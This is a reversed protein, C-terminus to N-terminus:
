FVMKLFWGMLCNLVLRITSYPKKPHSVLTKKGSPEVIQVDDTDNTIIIENNDEDYPFFYHAEEEVSFVNNATDNPQSSSVEKSNQVGSHSISTNDLTSSKFTEVLNILYPRPKAAMQRSIRAAAEMLLPTTIISGINSVTNLKRINISTETLSTM